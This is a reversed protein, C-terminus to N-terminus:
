TEGSLAVEKRGIVCCVCVCVCVGGGGEQDVGKKLHWVPGTGSRVHGNDEPCDESVMRKTGKGCLSWFDDVVM